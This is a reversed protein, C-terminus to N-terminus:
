TWSYYMFINKSIINEVVKLKRAEIKHIFWNGDFLYLVICPFCLKESSSIVDLCESILIRRFVSIYLRTSFLHFFNQYHGPRSVIVNIYEM